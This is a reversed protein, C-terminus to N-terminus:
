REATDSTFNENYMGLVYDPRRQNPQPLVAMIRWGYNLVSQVEDTCANEMLKLKNYTHMPNGPMYVNCKANYAPEQKKSSLREFDIEAETKKDVVETIRINYGLVTLGIYEEATVVNHKLFNRNGEKSEKFTNLNLTKITKLKEYTNNFTEETMDYTSFM